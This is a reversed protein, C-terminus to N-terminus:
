LVRTDEAQTIWRFNFHDTKEVYLGYTGEYKLENQQEKSNIDAHELFGMIMFALILAGAIFITQQIMNKTTNMPM